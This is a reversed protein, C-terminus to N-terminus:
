PSYALPILSVFPSLIECQKHVHQLYAPVVPTKHDSTDHCVKGSRPSPTDGSGHQARLVLWSIVDDRSQVKSLISPGIWLQIGSGLVWHSWVVILSLVNQGSLAM